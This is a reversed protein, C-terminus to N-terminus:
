TCGLIYPLFFLFENLSWKFIDYGTGQMTNESLYLMQLGDEQEAMTTM